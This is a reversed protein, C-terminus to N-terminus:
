EMGSSTHLPPSGCGEVWMAQDWSQIGLSWDIVGTGQGSTWDSGSGSIGGPAKGGLATYGLPMDKTTWPCTGPLGDIDLGQLYARCM